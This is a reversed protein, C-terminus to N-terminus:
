KCPLIPQLILIWYCAHSKKYWILCHKAFRTYYWLAPFPPCTITVTLMELLIFLDKEKVFKLLSCDINNKGFISSSNNVAIKIMYAIKYNSICTWNDVTNWPWILLMILKFDRVFPQSSLFSVYSILSGEPVVTRYWYYFYHSNNNSNNM